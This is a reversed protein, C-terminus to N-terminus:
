GHGVGWACRAWAMPGEALGAATPALWRHGDCVALWQRRGPAAVGAPAPAQVLLVDGRQALLPTPLRPLCEDVLGALGRARRLHALGEARVAHLRGGDVAAGTIAQVAGAAFHVCHWADWSFARAQHALFHAALREPWDPRRSPTPTNTM